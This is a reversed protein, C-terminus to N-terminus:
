SKTYYHTSDITGANYLKGINTGAEYLPNDAPYYTLSDGSKYLTQTAPYYTAIEGANYLRGVNTGAKYRTVSSLRKSTSGIPTVSAAAAVRISTSGIPTVSVSSGQVTFSGGNGKYYTAIEGANYLKGVNTGAKYRTVSSLRKSTSGIPTVSAAAAVRISTSSIPTISESDGRGTVSSGDGKYYTAATKALYYTLDYGSSKIEYWTGSPTESSTHRKFHVANGIEQISVSNGRGTVSSGNGKYRTVATGATYYVTGGSSVVKHYNAATGATYYVTGGSSVEEFVTQSSGQLTLESTQSGQLTVTVSDGRAYKTTTGAEYYTAATGATYYVTGGSTVVKHYNAATGATYYVTGGSSVEEYVTQSEGQLTLESTQSGQLTVTTTSAAAGRLTATETTAASGQLTLSATQSGQLAITQLTFTGQTYGSRADSYIASCDIQLTKTTGDGKTITFDWDYTSGHRGAAAGSAPAGDSYISSANVVATLVDVHTSGSFYYVHVTKKHDETWEDAESFLYTDGGTQNQPSVTVYYHNGSWTGTISSVARSFTGGSTGSPNNATYYKLTYVNDVPGTVSVSTVFLDKLDSYSYGAGSSSRFKLTGVEVTSAGLTGTCNISSVTLSSLTAIKTSIYDATIQDAITQGLLYIKSANITAVGEGANNIAVAISAATVKGDSGAVGAVKAEWSSATQNVYSRLSSDATQFEVRLSEASMQFESRASSIGSEFSVRLSSATMQLESRLSSQGAEFSVRLSESTMQLESRLSSQGAEFSVRLSESTMQFESRTSALENEFQVRLSDSTMELESRTSALDNEFQIRLSESTMEFQSRTSAIENEFQIRLSESTMLFESRTSEILNDFGIRLSETTMELVSHLHGCEDFVEYYLHNENAEFLYNQKAQGAAGKGGGRSQEKIITAVDASSNCLNVTVNEPEKRRDRWQKKVIRETITTNFEPLPCQCVKNLKLNDLSEGTEGSLELGSITISVTPECHKNLRGQAWAQLNEKTSKSQDTEIKDVRGYVNENKSLYVSDLHLDNKGVPYIRTYMGSRNVSRKLTSLNRGGRMECSVTGSRHRIHLKFPYVSLDYEWVADELTETVSGLADLLTEGGFEYPNSVSEYEFDGLVWDSQQGLIYQVAQKASVTSAGAQGAIDATTIEGFLSTDDLIKIIHELGIQRTESTVTDDLSKVRWVYNGEPWDDDLIWDNFGIEPGDPSLQLTCSSDREQLIMPQTEPLFFTGRTLSHGSLKYM